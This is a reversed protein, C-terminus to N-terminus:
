NCIKTSLADGANIVIGIILKVIPNKILLSVSELTVKTAPWGDCFINKALEGNEHKANEDITVDKLTALNQLQKEM